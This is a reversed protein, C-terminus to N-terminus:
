SHEREEQLLHKSSQMYVVGFANTVRAKVLLWRRPRLRGQFRAAAFRNETIPLEAGADAAM